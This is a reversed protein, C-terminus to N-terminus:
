VQMRMLEQYGELLKNRIEILLNLAVGAKEFEIVMRHLPIDEGRLVAERIEKAKGQQANVWELFEKLTNAFDQASEVKKGKEKLFNEFLPLNINGIEM